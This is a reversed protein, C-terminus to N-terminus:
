LSPRLALVRLGNRVIDVRVSGRIESAEGDFHFPADIPAEIIVSQARYSQVFKSKDLRKTFLKIGLNLINRLRFPKVITVDYLGDQTSAHPAIYANSGFQNINACNVVFAEVERKKGDMTISYTHPKYSIFERVSLTIYKLVGRLKQQAFLDSIHADFGFGCTCFFPQGNVVGYDIAVEQAQELALIAGPINLPLGLHRALGNGSGLPIIGLVSESGILARAVENITGDGGVAIIYDYHSEVAEQALRFADGRAHTYSMFLHYHEAWKLSALAVFAKKSSFGANPNIILKIKSGARM